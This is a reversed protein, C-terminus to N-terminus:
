SGTRSASDAVGPRRPTVSSRAQAGRRDGPRGRNGDAAPHHITGGDAAASGSVATPDAGGTTEPHEGQEEAPYEPECAALGALLVAALLLRKM